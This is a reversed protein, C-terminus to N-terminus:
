RVLDEKVEVVPTFIAFQKDLGDFFLHFFLEVFLCASDDNLIQRYRPPKETGPVNTLSRGTERTERKFILQSNVLSS